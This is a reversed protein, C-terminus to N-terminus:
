NKSEWAKNATRIVVNVFLIKGLDSMKQPSETFGWLLYRNQELILSSYGPNAPEEGLVTVIDPLMQFHITANNSETYLRLTRDEPIEIKYPMIFLPHNPDIVTTSNSQGHMGNPRGISLGLMGFFDYGSEGMGVIPKGAGEIAAAFQPDNWDAADDTDNGVIILDYGELATAPAQTLEVLATSCGYGVLLSQFSGAAESDSNYIYAIRPLFM